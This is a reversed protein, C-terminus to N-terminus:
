PCRARDTGITPRTAAMPDRQAILSTLADIDPHTGLETAALRLVHLAEIQRGTASLARALQLRLTRRLPYTGTLYYLDAVTTFDAAGALIHEQQLELAVLRLRSIREIEAAASTCHALEPYPLGRWLSLAEEVNAGARDHRGATWHRYGDEILGTFREADVAGDALVLQVTTAVQLTGAPLQIAVSRLLMRIRHAADAPPRDWVVSSLADVEMNQNANMVLWGLATRVRSGSLPLAGDSASIRLPGLVDIRM